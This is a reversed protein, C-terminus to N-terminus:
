PQDTRNAAFDRPRMVHAVEELKQSLKTLTYDLRLMVGGIAAVLLIFLLEM